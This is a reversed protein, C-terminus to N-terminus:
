NDGRNKNPNCQKQNPKATNKLTLYQTIKIQLNHM